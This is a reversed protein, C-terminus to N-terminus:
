HHRESSSSKGVQHGQTPEGWAAARKLGLGSLQQDWGKRGGAQKGPQSQTFLSYLASFLKLIGRAKKRFLGSSAVEAIIPSFVVIEQKEIYVIPM